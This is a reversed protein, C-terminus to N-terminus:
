GLPVEAVPSWEYMRHDRHIRILSIHTVLARAPAVRASALAATVPAAPGNSSSYALSIHPQFGDDDEPVVPLVDGIAARIERRIQRISDAPQVPVLVAEPDVVPAELLVGPAHIAALRPRVAAEIQEITGDTIEDTFGIGQTTLHLWQPPVLDLGPVDALARQYEDVYRHVDAQGWTIHWTYYRRGEHWGPRWWWHDRMQEPLDQQNTTL